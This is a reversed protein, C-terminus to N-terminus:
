QEETKEIIVATGSMARLIYNSSSSNVYVHVVPIYDYHIGIIANAGLELAERGLQIEPPLDEDPDSYIPELYQKVKYGDVHSTTTQVLIKERVENLIEMAGDLKMDEATKFIFDHLNEDIQAKDGLEHFYKVGDEYPRSKSAKGSEIQTLNYGCDNCVMYTKGMIDKRSEANFEYTKGCIQCYQQM